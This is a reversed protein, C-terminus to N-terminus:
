EILKKLEEVIIHGVQNFINNVIKRRNEAAEKWEQVQDRIYKQNDRLLDKLMEEAKDLKELARLREVSLKFGLSGLSLSLVQKLQEPQKERNMLNIVKNIIQPTPTVTLVLVNLAMTCNDAMKIDQTCIDLIQNAAAETGVHPLANFLIQAALLDISYEPENKALKLQNYVEKLIPQPSTRLMETVVRLQVLAEQSTLDETNQAVMRLQTVIKQSSYVDAKNSIQKPEQKSPQFPDQPDVPKSPMTMYLDSRKHKGPTVEPIETTESIMVSSELVLTQNVSTRLEGNEQPQTYPSFVIREESIASMIIFKDKNGKISYDIIANRSLPQDKLYNHVLYGDFPSKFYGPQAICRGFDRVKGVFIRGESSIPQVAYQTACDGTPSQELVTYLSTHPPYKIKAPQVSDELLLRKQLNVEFLSAFARKTNASWSTERDDLAIDMVHGNDYTFSFPIQLYQIVTRADPGVFEKLFDSPLTHVDPEIQIVPQDIKYLIIDKLEVRVRSATIFQVRASTSLKYGSNQRSGPNLSTQIQSEYKYLYQVRPRFAQEEIVNSAVALGVLFALLLSRM